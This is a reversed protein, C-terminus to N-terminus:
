RHSLDYEGGLRTIVPCGVFQLHKVDGHGTENKPDVKGLGVTSGM